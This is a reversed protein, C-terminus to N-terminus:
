FEAHATGSFESRSILMDNNKDEQQMIDKIM